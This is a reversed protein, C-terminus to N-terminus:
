CPGNHPFRKGAYILPRDNNKGMIGCFIILVSVSIYHTDRIKECFRM